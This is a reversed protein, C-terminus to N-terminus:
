PINLAEKQSRWEFPIEVRRTLAEATLNMSQRGRMMSEVIDPALFARRILRGVYRVALGERAAIQAFSKAKGTGLEDFWRHARAVAKLLPLDVAGASRDHDGVILRLEAGRRKLQMPFSRTIAIESIQSQSKETSPIPLTISVRMGDSKLEVRNVLVALADPQEAESGLRNNWTRAAELVQNIHHSDLDTKQAAELVATQDDLIQRIAAAVRRELEREPM